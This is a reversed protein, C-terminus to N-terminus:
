LVSGLNVDPAFFINEVFIASELWTAKSDWTLLNRTPGDRTENINEELIEEPLSILTPDPEPQGEATETAQPPKPTLDESTLMQLSQGDSMDFAKFYYCSVSLLYESTRAISHLDGRTISDGEQRDFPWINGSQNYIGRKPDNQVGLIIQVDESTPAQQHLRPFTTGSALTMALVLVCEKDPELDVTHISTLDTELKLEAPDGTDNALLPTNQLKFARKEGNVFLEMHLTYHKPDRAVCVSDNMTVNCTLVNTEESESVSSRHHEPEARGDTSRCLCGFSVPGGVKFQCSKPIANEAGTKLDQSKEPGPTVRTVQYVVGDNVFTEQEYWGDHFNKESLFHYQIHPWRHNILGRTYCGGLSYERTVDPIFQIGFTGKGGTQDRRQARALLAEARRPFRGMMYVTGCQEDPASMYLLEHWNTVSAIHGESGCDLTKAPGERNLTVYFDESCCILM